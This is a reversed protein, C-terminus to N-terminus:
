SRQESYERVALQEREHAARRACLASLSEGVPREEDVRESATLDHLEGLGTGDALYSWEQLRVATLNRDFRGDYDTAIAWDRGSYTVEDATAQEVVEPLDLLSAPREVNGTRDLGSVVWPVHIHEEYLAPYFHGYVGREGFAEGHDGHVVFVPDFDDLRERLEGLLADGFRVSDDYIDVIKQRERESLDADLEDILQNCRWNYYYQDFLSSWQRHSRPTLHPFHTDMAFIWLFFPDDQARVWREVDDVYSDWTKFAEERRVFNRLNRFLTYLSSDSLHREFVSQYRDSSFLFDEFDDFGRDFGVESSVNGMTTIGVTEYGADQFREALTEVPPSFLDNRTETGHAPPYLGTLLSSAVPRTWTAPSFCREFRVGDDALADINPSLDREYGYCSLHDARLADMVYLIVNV